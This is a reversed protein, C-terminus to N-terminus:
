KEKRITYLGTFIIITFILGVIFFARKFEERAAIDLAFQLFIM